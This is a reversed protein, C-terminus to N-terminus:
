RFPNIHNIVDELDLDNYKCYQRVTLCGKKVQLAERVALHERSAKDLTCGRILRIDKPTIFLGGKLREM